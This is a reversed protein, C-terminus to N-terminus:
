MEFLAAWDPLFMVHALGAGHIGIFIDSNYTTQPPNSCHLADQNTAEEDCVFCTWGCRYVVYICVKIQELFSFERCSFQLLIFSQSKLNM